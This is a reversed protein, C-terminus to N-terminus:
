YDITISQSGHMMCRNDLRDLLSDLQGLFTCVFMTGVYSKVRAVSEDLHTFCIILGGCCQSFYTLAPLVSSLIFDIM